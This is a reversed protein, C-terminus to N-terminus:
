EVLRRTLQISNAPNYGDDYYVWQIQRGGVGRKGDPGKTSNVYSFYAKMALAITGYPSAPGTLPFTGGIKITKSTVGPDAARGSTADAQAFAGPISLWLAALLALGLLSLRRM